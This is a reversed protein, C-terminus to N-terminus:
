RAHALAPRGPTPTSEVLATLLQEMLELATQAQPETIVLPPVIRIVKKALPGLLHIGDGGGGRYCTLVVAAAWDSASRGAHDRLEVGWVMGGREGRVRGVFPLGQMDEDAGPGEGVFLLEANPNGVGFVIQKRGQKHLACRTCDGLDERILRLAKVPDSVGQEPRSPLVELISKEVADTMAVATAKRPSMEDGSERQEEEVVEAVQSVSSALGSPERRYFDYVGMENYFRIRDALAKRLEPDLTRPM